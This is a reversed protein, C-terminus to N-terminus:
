GERALFRSHSIPDSRWHDGPRSCGEKVKGGTMCLVVFPTLRKQRRASQSANRKDGGGEANIAKAINEV